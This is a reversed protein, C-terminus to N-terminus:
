KLFFCDLSIFTNKTIVPDYKKNWRFHLTLNQCKIFDKCVLVVSKEFMKIIFQNGMIDKKKGEHEMRFSVYM